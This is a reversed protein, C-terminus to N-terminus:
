IAQIMKETEQHNHYSQALDAIQKIREMESVSDAKKMQSFRISLEKIKPSAKRDSKKPSDEKGEEWPIRSSRPTKRVGDKDITISAGGGKLDPKLAGTSKQVVTTM